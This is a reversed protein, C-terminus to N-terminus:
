NKRVRYTEHCSDCAGGITTAAVKLDDLSKPKGQVGQMVKVMNAAKADFDSRTEWVKPSAAYRSGPSEKGKSSEPFAGSIKVSTAALDRLLEDVKAQEYPAEGKVISNVGRYLLTGQQRMLVTSPLLESQAMVSGAAAVGAALIGAAILFKKM